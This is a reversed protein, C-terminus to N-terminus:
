KNENKLVECESNKIQLSLSYQDIKNQNPQPSTSRSNNNMTRNRNNNHNQQAYTNYMPRSISTKRQQITHNQTSKNQSKQQKNKQHRPKTPNPKMNEKNPRTHLMLTKSSYNIKKTPKTMIPTTHLESLFAHVRDEASIKSQTPKSKSKNFRAVPRQLQSSRM